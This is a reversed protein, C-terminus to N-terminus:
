MGLKVKKHWTHVSILVDEQLPYKEDIIFLNRDYFINKQVDRVDDLIDEYNELDPLRKPKRELEYIEFLLTWDKQIPLKYKLNMIDEVVGNMPKLKRNILLKDENYNYWSKDRTDITHTLTLTDGLILRILQKILEDDNLVVYHAALIGGMSQIVYNQNSAISVIVFDHTQYTAGFNVVFLTQKGTRYYLYKSLNLIDQTSDIDIEYLKNNIRALHDKVFAATDYCIPCMDIMDQILEEKYEEDNLINRSTDGIDGKNVLYILEYDRYRDTYDRLFDLLVTENM